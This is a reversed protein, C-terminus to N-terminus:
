TRRVRDKATRPGQRCVGLKMSAKVSEEVLMLIKKLSSTM